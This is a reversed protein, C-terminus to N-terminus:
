YVIQTLKICTNMMESDILLDQHAIPIGMKAM